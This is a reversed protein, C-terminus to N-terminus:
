AANKAERLEDVVARAVMMGHLEAIGGATPTPWYADDRHGIAGMKALDGRARLFATKKANTSDGTHVAYFEGRWAELGVLRAGPPLTEAIHDPPAFGSEDIATLLSAFAARQTPTVSRRAKGTAETEVLVVSTEPEGEDDRWPLTVQELEFGMPAPKAADKMKTASLTRIGDQELLAYETDMAGRIAGSGRSRTKDGHGSHHATLVTCGYRQILADTARTYLGMDVSSSDDRGGINRHLTDVVILAPTGAMAAIGDVLTVVESLSAVDPLDTGRDSVFLPAIRLAEICDNALAWAMLRRRIGHHGEGALYIVCGQAVKRARWERGIAISAAWDIALLSKGAEPDGFVLSQTGPLLVGRILWSLPPPQELLDCVPTFRIGPKQAPAAPPPTHPQEAQGQEATAQEPEAATEAEDSGPDPPTEGRIRALYDDMDIRAADEPKSSMGLLRAAERVARRFDDGYNSLIRWVDFADRAHGDALPDGNHHSYVRPPDSKLLVVGPIRSSSEPWLWRTRRRLYGFSDLLAGIDHAANFADIVKGREGTARKQQTEIARKLADAEREAEALAADVDIPEGETEGHRFFERRASPCAPLWFFRAAELPKRDLCEALGLRKAVHEGLPKIEGPQVPRSVAFVLRYRHHEVGNPLIAPDRHSHSTHGIARWGCLDAESLAEDLPPPEPGIVTKIKTGKDTRTEGEIDLVLVCWAGANPGNRWHKIDAPLWGRGDKPERVEPTGMLASLEGWTPEAHSIIAPENMGAVFAIRLREPEPEVKVKVDENEFVYGCHGCDPWEAARGCKPCIMTLGDVDALTWDDPPETNLESLYRADIGDLRSKAAPKAAADTM